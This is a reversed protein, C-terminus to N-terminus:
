WLSSFNFDISWELTDVHHIRDLTSTVENPFYPKQLFQLWGYLFCTGTQFVSCQLPAYWWHRRRLIHPLFRSVVLRQRHVGQSYWWQSPLRCPRLMCITELERWRSLPTSIGKCSSNFSGPQCRRGIPVNWVSCALSHSVVFRQFQSRNHLLEQTHYVVLLLIPFRTVTQMSRVSVVVIRSTNSKGVHFLSFFVSIVLDTNKIEFLPIM